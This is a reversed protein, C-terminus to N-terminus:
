RVGEETVQAWGTVRESFGGCCCCAIGDVLRGTATGVLGGFLALAEGGLLRRGGGGLESGGGGPLLPQRDGGPVVGGGSTRGGRPAGAFDCWVPVISFWQFSRGLLKRGIDRAPERATERDV